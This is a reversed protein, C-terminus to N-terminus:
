FGSWLGLTVIDLVDTMLSNGQKQEKKPQRDAKTYRAPPPAPSAMPAALPAVPAGCSPCHHWGAPPRQMGCYLCGPQPKHSTYLRQLPPGNAGM